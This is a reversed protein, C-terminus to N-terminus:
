PAMSDSAASRLSPKKSRAITHKWTATMNAKTAEAVHFKLQLLVEERKSRPRNTLVCEGLALAPSRRGSLGISPSSLKTGHRSINTLILSKSEWHHDIRFHKGSVGQTSDEDLVLDCLEDDSGFIWGFLPDFPKRTTTLVFWM